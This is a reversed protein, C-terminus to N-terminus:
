KNHNGQLSGWCCFLASVTIGNIHVFNTFRWNDDELLTLGDNDQEESERMAPTRIVVRWSVLPSYFKTKALLFVIEWEGEGVRWGPSNNKEGRV